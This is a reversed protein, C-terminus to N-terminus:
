RRRRMLGLAGLGAALLAISAPEPAPTYNYTLTDTLSANSITITNGSAVFLSQLVSSGPTTFVALDGSSADALSISITTPGPTSFIPSGTVTGSLNFGATADQFGNFVLFNSGSNGSLTAPGSISFTLSTLTGLSSNFNAFTAPAVPTPLGGNVTQSAISFTQTQTVAAAQASVVGFLSLGACVTFALLNNVRM